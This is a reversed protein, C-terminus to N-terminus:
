VTSYKISFMWREKQDLIIESTKEKINIAEKYADVKNTSKFSNM